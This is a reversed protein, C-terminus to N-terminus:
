GAAEGKLAALRKEVESQRALDKLEALQAADKGSTGLMDSAHGSARDFAAAARDVSKNIEHQSSPNGAADLVTNEPMEAKRADFAKLEEQMDARKGKLADIYGHLEKEQEAADTIAQELVPMQVELDMQRSIAATALDDRGEKVAVEIQESLEEHKSSNSALKKSAVHGEAVAKGIEAQIEDMAKEVERISEEMVMEPSMNEVADVAANIGGAILRSVRTAINTM